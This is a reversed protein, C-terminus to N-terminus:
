LVAHILPPPIAQSVVITICTTILRMRTLDGEVNIADLAALRDPNAAGCRHLSICRRSKLAHQATATLHREYTWVCNNNSFLRVGAFRLRHIPPLNKLADEKVAPQQRQWKKAISITV